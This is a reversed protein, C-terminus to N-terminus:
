FPVENKSIFFRNIKMHVKPHIEPRKKVPKNLTLKFHYLESLKTLFGIFTTVKGFGHLMKMIMRNCAM